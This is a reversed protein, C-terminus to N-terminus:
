MWMINSGPPMSWTMSLTRLAPGMPKRMKSASCNRCITTANMGPSAVCIAAPM